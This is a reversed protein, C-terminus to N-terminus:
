KLSFTNFFLYFMLCIEILFHEFFSLVYFMNWHFLTWFPYFMFCIEILFHEFFLSKILTSMLQGVFLYQFRGLIDRLNSKYHEWNQKTQDLSHSNKCAGFNDVKLREGLGIVKLALICWFLSFPTQEQFNSFKGFCFIHFCPSM